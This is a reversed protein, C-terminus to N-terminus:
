HKLGFSTSGSLVSMERKLSRREGRRHFPGLTRAGNKQGDAQLVDFIRRDTEFRIREPKFSGASGVSSEASNPDTEVFFDISLNAGRCKGM